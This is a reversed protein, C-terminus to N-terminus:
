YLYLSKSEVTIGTKDIEIRHLNKRKFRDRQKLSSVVVVSSAAAAVVSANRRIREAAAAAAAAQQLV